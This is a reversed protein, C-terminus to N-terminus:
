RASLPTKLSSVGSFGALALFSAAFLGCQDIHELDNKFALDFSKGRFNCVLRNDVNRFVEAM